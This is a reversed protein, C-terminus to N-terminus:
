MLWLQHKVQPTALSRLRTQRRGYAISWTYALAEDNKSVLTCVTVLGSIRLRLHLWSSIACRASGVEKDVRFRAIEQGQSDLSVGAAVEDICREIIGCIPQKSLHYEVDIVHEVRLHEVQHDGVVNGLRDM